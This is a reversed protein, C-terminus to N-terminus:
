KAADIETTYVITNPGLLNHVKYDNYPVCIAGASVRPVRIRLQHVINKQETVCAKSTEFTYSRREIPPTSEDNMAAHSAWFGIVLVWKGILM